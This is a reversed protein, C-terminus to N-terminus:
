QNMRLQSATNFKRPSFKELQNLVSELVSQVNSVKESPIATHLTRNLPAWRNFNSYPSFIIVSPIMLAAAIHSVGTDNCVLLESERITCALDGLTFESLDLVPNVCPYHMSTAVEQLVSKESASGTLVITYGMGALYDGIYAFHQPKWRRREDRAGPHICIYNRATLGLNHAITKFRIEEEVSIPFELDASSSPIGLSTTLKLFRLIENEDDESVPFLRDDPSYDNERRLGTVVRAEWSMCMQNTISGNGQMQLVLDFHRKRVDHLFKDIRKEDVEQEPLGPWGPFEMFYDFYQKFRDAFQKQWPLGILTIIASPYASRLARVSPIICLMDGLYLARFVAITKINQLEM